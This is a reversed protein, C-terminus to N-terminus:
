SCFGQAAAAYVDGPGHCKRLLLNALAYCQGNPSSPSGILRAVNHRGLSNESIIKHLEENRSM